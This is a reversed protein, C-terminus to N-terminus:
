LGIDQHDTMSRLQKSVEDIIDATQSLQQSLAECVILNLEHFEKDSISSKTEDNLISKFATVVKDALQNNEISM